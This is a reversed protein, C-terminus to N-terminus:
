ATVWLLGIFTGVVAFSYKSASYWISQLHELRLGRIFDTVSSLRVLAAARCISILNHDTEHALSRLIQPHLTIEAAYYALHLYGAPSLKRM